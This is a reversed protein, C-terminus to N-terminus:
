CRLGSACLLTAVFVVSVIPDYMENESKGVSSKFKVKPPKPDCGVGDLFRMMFALPALFGFFHGSMGEALYRRLELLEPLLYYWRIVGDYKFKVPTSQSPPQTDPM